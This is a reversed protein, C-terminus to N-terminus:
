SSSCDAKLRYAPLELSGLDVLNEILELTQKIQEPLLAAYHPLTLIRIGLDYARQAKMTDYRQGKELKEQGFIPQYHLPGNYEIGLKLSPIYLDLELGSLLTRNNCLVELEPFKQNIAELIKIEAKSRNTKKIQGNKHRHFAACSKNCFNNGHRTRNFYKPTVQLPTGCNACPVKILSNDPNNPCVKLHRKLTQKYQCDKCFPCLLSKLRM